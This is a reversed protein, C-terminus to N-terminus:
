TSRTVKIFDVGEMHSSFERLAEKSPASAENAAVAKALVDAAKALGDKGLREVQASFSSATKLSTSPSLTTGSPKTKARSSKWFSPETSNALSSSSMTALRVSAYVRIKLINQEIIARMRDFDIKHNRIVEVAKKNFLDDNKLYEEKISYGDCCTTVTTKSKPSRKM